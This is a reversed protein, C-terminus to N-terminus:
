CSESWEFMDKKKTLAKLPSAIAFFVEVFSRYYNAWGLFSWIDTPTLPRPQNKLSEIIRLDVEVGQDFMVHGLLTM